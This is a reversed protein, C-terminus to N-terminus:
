PNFPSNLEWAAKWQGNKFTEISQAKISNNQQNIDGKIRVMEAVHRAMVARDVNPVFYYKNESTLVVFTNETAVLPDEMGVPCTKGQVVCNYGEVTGEITGSAGFAYVSSLLILLTILFIFKKM